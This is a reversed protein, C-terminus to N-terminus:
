PNRCESYIPGNSSETQELCQSPETIRGDISFDYAQGKLLLAYRGAPLIFDDEPRIAVMEPNENLPAVRFEYSNTRVAWLNDLKSIKAKDTSSLTMGRMIKAVARITVREPASTVLDRRYAIFSIKGDPLKTRSPETIVASVFVRADPVKVPLFQLESLQGNSIAYVGYVTPLPFPQTLKFGASEQDKGLDSVKLDKPMTASISSLNQSEKFHFQGEFIAYLGVALIAIVAVLRLAPVTAAWGSKSQLIPPLAEAPTLWSTRSNLGIPETPEHHIVVAARSSRAEASEIRIVRSLLAELEQEEAAFTEIREIAADLSRMYRRMEFVDVPPERVWAERQLKTRALQYIMKRLQSPDSQAADIARLLIRCFDEKASGNPRPAPAQSPLIESSM